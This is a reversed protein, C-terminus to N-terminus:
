RPTPNGEGEGVRTDVMKEEQQEDEVEKGVVTPWAELIESCVQICEECIYVTPGAVVRVGHNRQDKGCFSCAYDLQATNFREM